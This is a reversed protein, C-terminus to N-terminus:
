GRFSLCTRLGKDILKDLVSAHESPAGKASSSSHQEKVKQEKDKQEIATQIVSKKKKEQASNQWRVQADPRTRGNGNGKRNNFGHSPHFLSSVNADNRALAGM